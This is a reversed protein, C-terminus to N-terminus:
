GILKRYADVYGKAMHMYTFRQEFERRIAAPNLTHIHRVADCAQQENEVIFGTVGDTIVEPVSGRNWAIVPVGCAMAEIMVIGFPEPWDIPFILAKAQQLFSLKEAGGITGIYRIEDDLYPVVHEDFYTPNGMDRDGALLLSEGTARAINIARDPRKQDTMRGLFALYERPTNAIKFANPDIGHYVTGLWHNDPRCIRQNDSISVMPHQLFYSLATERDSGDLQWHHTTVCKHALEAFVAYHTFETHFHLIDFEDAQRRIKDLMVTERAARLSPNPNDMLGIAGGQKQLTVNVESEDAAFLTVEHGLAQLGECLHYIVRETGGYEKPPVPLELPAIQAIKM